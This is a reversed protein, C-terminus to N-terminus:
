ASRYARLAIDVDSRVEPLSIVVALGSTAQVKMSSSATERLCHLLTEPRSAYLHKMRRLDRLYCGQRLFEAVTRQVAAAPAPALCAAIEGSRRILDQPVVMFGLRLRLALPKASGVSTYCGEGM